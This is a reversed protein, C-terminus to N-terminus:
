TWGLDIREEKNIGKEIKPHIKMISNKKENIMELAYKLFFRPFKTYKNQKHGGCQFKNNVWIYWNIRTPKLM